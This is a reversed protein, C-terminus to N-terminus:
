TRYRIFLKRVNIQTTVIYAVPDTGMRTGTFSHLREMGHIWMIPRISRIETCSVVVRWGSSIGFNFTSREGSSIDVPASLGCFYTLRYSLPTLTNIPYAYRVSRGASSNTVPSCATQISNCPHRPRVRRRLKTRPLHPTCDARGLGRINFRQFTFAHVHSLFCRRPITSGMCISTGAHQTVPCPEAATKQKKPPPPPLYTIVRAKKQPTTTGLSLPLRFKGSKMDPAKSRGKGNAKRTMPKLTSWESDPSPPLQDYPDDSKKPPSSARLRSLQPTPCLEEKLLPEPSPGEDMIGPPTSYGFFHRAQAFSPSPSVIGSELLAKIVPQKFRPRPSPQIRQIHQSPRPPLTTREPNVPTPRGESLPPHAFCGNGQDASNTPAAHDILIHARNPTISHPVPIHPGFYAPVQPPTPRPKFIVPTCHQSHPPPNTPSPSPQFRKLTPVLHPNPSQHIPLGPHVTPSTEEPFPSLLLTGQHQQPIRPQSSVPVTHVASTTMHAIPAPSRTPAPVPNDPADIAPTLAPKHSPTQGQSAQAPPKTTKPKRAQRNFADVIAGQLLKKAAPNEPVPKLATNPQRPRSAANIRAISWPNPKYQASDERAALDIQQLTQSSNSSIHSSTGADKSAREETEDDSDADDFFGTASRLSFSWDTDTM